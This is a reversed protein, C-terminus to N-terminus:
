THDSTLLYVHHKVAVSFMLSILSPLIIQSLPTLSINQVEHGEWVSVSDDDNAVVRVSQM